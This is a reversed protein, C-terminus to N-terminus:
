RAQEAEARAALLPELVQLVNRAVRQNGEATPHLGDAQMLERNGGVGELLFPILPVGLDQAIEPFVKEFADLYERGYNPPLKMGALIVQSGRQRFHTVIERLNSRMREPDLGRLGDNGGFAVIVYEPNLTSVIEKRVLGGSTTDGSMGENRVVFKLGLQNLERQLYDPYSQGLPVGHGATLSDGFAVIVPHSGLSPSPADSPPAAPEEGSGNVGPLGSGCAWSVVLTLLLLATRM